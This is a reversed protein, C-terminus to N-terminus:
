WNIDAVILLCIFKLNALYFLYKVVQVADKVSNYEHLLKMIESNRETETKKCMEKVICTLREKEEKLNEQDM